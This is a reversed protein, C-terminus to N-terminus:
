RGNSSLYRLALEAILRAIEARDRSADIREIVTNKLRRPPTAIVTEYDDRFKRLSEIDEEYGPSGNERIAIRGAAENIPLDLYVVVDPAMTSESMVLLWEPVRGVHSAWGCLVSRDAVLIDGGRQRKLLNIRGNTAYLAAQLPRYSTIAQMVKSSHEQHYMSTILKGMLGSRATYRVTSVSFGKEELLAVTNGIATTKGTGDIGEVALHVPKKGNLKNINALIRKMGNLVLGVLGFTTSQKTKNVPVYGGPSEHEQNGENVVVLSTPSVIPQDPTTNFKLRYHQQGSLFAKSDPKQYGQRLKSTNGM